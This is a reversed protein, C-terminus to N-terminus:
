GGMVFRIGEFEPSIFDLKKQIAGMLSKLGEGNQLVKNIFQDM